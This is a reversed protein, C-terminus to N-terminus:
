PERISRPSMDSMDSTDSRDSRDSVSIIAADFETDISRAELHYGDEQRFVRMYHLPRPWPADCLDVHQREAPRKRPVRPGGGGATILFTKGEKEFREYGHIHGAALLRTKRAHLFLPVFSEQVEPSEPTTASNSYPAHHSFVFVADIQTDADFRSLEAAFWDRQQRWDDDTIEDRNSDLWILGLQGLRRAYWRNVALQPFRRSLNELAAQNSGWYEHNGLALLVPAAQKRLAAAWHDFNEWDSESSGWSVADGVIAVLAPRERAVVALLRPTAASNDERMLLYREAFITRQTDGLIVLPHKRTPSASGAGLDAYPL